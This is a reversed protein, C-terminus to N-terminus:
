VLDNRSFMHSIIDTIHLDYDIDMLLTEYLFLGYFIFSGYFRFIVWLFLIIGWLVGMSFDTTNVILKSYIVWLGM